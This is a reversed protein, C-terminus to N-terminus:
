RPPAPLSSMYDALADLDVDKYAQIVKVMKPNANRRSLDRIYLMERLLYKYHQSAVMPYFKNGDGEGMEGHCSACDKAYIEKGRTLGTGPGRGISNPIPLEELYAAIDAIDRPMVVHDEIFPGMKPNERMGSRIDVMQKILVSAHQGALRPYAGTARGSADSRHCGQCIEFAISGVVPNGKASLAEAKEGDIQNWAAGSEGDVSVGLDPAFAIQAHAGAMALGLFLAIFLRKM